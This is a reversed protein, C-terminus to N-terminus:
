AFFDPFNDPPLDPLVPLDAMAGETAEPLTLEPFPPTSLEPMEGGEPVPPLVM